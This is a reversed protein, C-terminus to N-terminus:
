PPPLLKYGPLETGGTLNILARLPVFPPRDQRLPRADKREKAIVRGAFLGSRIKHQLYSPALSHILLYQGLYGVDNVLPKATPFM